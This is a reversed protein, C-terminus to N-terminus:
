DYVTVSSEDLQADPPCGPALRAVALPMHAVTPEPLAAKPRGHRALADSVEDVLKTLRAPTLTALFSHWESPAPDFHAYATIRYRDVLEALVALHAHTRLVADKADGFRQPPVAAIPAMQILGTTGPAQPILSLVAEATPHLLAGGHHARLAPILPALAARRFAALPSFVDCAGRPPASAPPLVRACLTAHVSALVPDIHDYFGHPRPAHLPAVCPPRTLRDGLVAQAQPAEAFGRLLLGAQALDVELSANAVVVFSQKNFPAAGARLEDLANAMAANLAARRAAEAQQREEEEQAAAAAAASEPPPAAARSHPALDEGGAATYPSGRGSPTASTATMGLRSVQQEKQTFSAEEDPLFLVRANGVYQEEEIIQLAARGCRQPCAGEAFVLEWDCDLRDAYLWQLQHYLVRVLDMGQLHELRTLMATGDGYLPVVIKVVHEPLADVLLKSKARMLAVWAAEALAGGKRLLAAEFAELAETDCFLDLLADAAAEVDKWHAPDGVDLEFDVKQLAERARGRVTAQVAKSFGYWPVTPTDAKLVALMEDIAAPVDTRTLYEVFAGELGEAM